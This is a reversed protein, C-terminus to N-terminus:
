FTYKLKFYYERGPEPYGLDYEYNEDFLNDIGFGLKTNKSYDYNLDINAITINSQKEYAETTNNQLIVGHKIIYNARISTNESVKYDIYFMFENEPIEIVTEESDKNIDLYTYNFGTKIRNKEYKINSEFGKYRENGTNQEQDKSGVSVSVIPDKVKSYFISSDIIFNNKTITHGLEYHTVEEPELYPNTIAKGRKDSFREKMTPFNTKKSYTLRTTQNEFFDYFLGIQPNFASQSDTSIVNGSTVADSPKMKDYSAGAVIKFEDSVFITDEIAISYINDKYEDNSKTTSKKGVKEEYGKHSDQKFNLSMKIINDEIWSFNTYELSSGITHEDYDTFSPTGTFTSDEYMETINNYDDRYLRFKIDGSDYLKNAIFYMTQKDWQPWEWFKETNKTSDTIIAQSKESDLYSYGFVYESSDDPTLGVKVSISKSQSDSNNREGSDQTVTPNYDNSLNWHDRDEITADLQLYYNKKKSGLSLTNITSAYDADNDLNVQSSFSGEFEKEPKKSILNIVGAGTNPGYLTSSFGKAVDISSLNTTLIRSYDFQGDFPVYIPIGDLFVGTKGTAFGRIGIAKEGRGGRNIISLGSVEDLVSAIDKKSNSELDKSEIKKIDLYENKKDVVSIEGLTFVNDALLVNASICTILFLSKKM